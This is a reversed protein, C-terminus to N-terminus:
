LRNYNNLVLKKATQETPITRNFFKDYALYGISLLAIALCLGGTVDSLYHVCLYVRALSLMTALFVGSLLCALKGKKYNDALTLALAMYFVVATQSHGSPFSYGSPFNYFLTPETLFLGSPRARLVIHKIAFNIALSVIVITTVPLGIKKRNPLILLVGCFIAITYSEGLYSFIVFLYDFFRVRNSSFFKAITNDFNQMNLNKTAIFVLIIGFIITSFSAIIIFIAKQSKDM